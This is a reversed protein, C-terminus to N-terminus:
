DRKLRAIDYCVNSFFSTARMKCFVNTRWKATTSSSILIKIISWDASYMRLEHVLWKHFLALETTQPRTENLCLLFYHFSKVSTFHSHSLPQALMNDSPQQNSEGPRWTSTDKPLISFGLSSRICQDAGQMAAMAMLTHIYSNSYTAKSLPM